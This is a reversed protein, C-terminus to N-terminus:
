KKEEKKLSILCYGDDVPEFIHVEYAEVFQTEGANFLTRQVTGIYAGQLCKIIEVVPHYHPKFSGGEKFKVFLNIYNDFDAKKIYDKWHEEHEFKIDDPGEIVRDFVGRAVEIYRDSPISIYSDSGVMISAETNKNYSIPVRFLKKELESLAFLGIKEKEPKGKLARKLIDKIM